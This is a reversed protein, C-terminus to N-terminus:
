TIIYWPGYPDTTEYLLTKVMLYNGEISLVIPMLDFYYTVNLQRAIDRIDLIGIHGGASSITFTINSNNLPFNEVYFVDRAYTVDGVQFQDAEGSTDIFIARPLPEDEEDVLPYSIPNEEPPTVIMAGQTVNITVTIEGEEPVEYSDIPDFEFLPEPM